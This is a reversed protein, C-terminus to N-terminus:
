GGHDVAHGRQRRRLGLLVQIGAGEVDTIGKLRISKGSWTDHPILSNTAVWPVVKVVPPAAQATAALGGVVLALTTILILGPSLRRRVRESYM